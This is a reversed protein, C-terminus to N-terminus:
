RPVVGELFVAVIQEGRSKCSFRNPQRWWDLLAVELMALLVWVLRAVPIDRRIGGAQAARGLLDTTLSAFRQRAADQIIHSRVDSWSCESVKWQLYLNFLAGNQEVFEAAREVLQKLQTLPEDSALPRELDAQFRAYNQETIAIVVAEKSEFYKYLTGVAVGTALAIDAMKAAHYGQRLVTEQAAALIADRYAARTHQRLRQRLLHSMKTEISRSTVTTKM